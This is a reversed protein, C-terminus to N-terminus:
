RDRREQLLIAAPPEGNLGRLFLVLAEIEEPKLDHGRIRGNADLLQPDLNPRLTFHRNMADKLTAAEGNHMYPATRLLSRLTPTKFANILHRDKQGIPVSTFRGRQEGPLPEEVGLNHFDGDTFQGGSHCAICNTRAANRFLQAGLALERAVDAKKAKDRDLDPFDGDQLVAEYHAAELAPSGKKKQEAMARDYVSNGALLTRLYVALVRGVSDQTPLQGFVQQFQNCISDDRRLRQIVGHWVHNFLERTAPEREDNLSRQVVEELLEARGDWFQHRNYLCNILTPTNLGVHETAGDSLGQKPDHCTACSTGGAATLWTKDFFLRKGLRWKGYTMPNSAPIYARPDDLGLPVKIRIVKDTAAASAAALPWLGLLTAPGHDQKLLPPAVWYAPLKSWEEPNSDAHVFEIRVPDNGSGSSDIWQVDPSLPVQPVTPMSAPAPAAFSVPPREGFRAARQCGIMGAVLAAIVLLRKM